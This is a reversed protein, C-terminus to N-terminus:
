RPAVKVRVSFRDPLTENGVQIPPMEFSLVDDPGPLRNIVMSSGVIDRSPDAAATGPTPPTVRRTTRFVLREESGNAVVVLLSGAIQVTSVGAGSNVRMPALSFQGGNENIRLQSHTVQDAQGPIAHVIWLDINFVRSSPVARDPNSGAAPDLGSPTVGTNGAIVGSSAISGRVTGSMPLTVGSTRVGGFPREGYRAEFTINMSPCGVGAQDLTVSEGNRLTLQVSAENGATKKGQALTRRWNLQVVARERDASIVKGTFRWIDTANPIPRDGNGAGALCQNTSVTSDLDPGTDVASGAFSGDLRHNFLGVQVVLDPASQAVVTAPVCGLLLALAVAKLAKMM